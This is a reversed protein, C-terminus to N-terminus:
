SESGVSLARLSTEAVALRDAGSFSALAVTASKGGGDFHLASGDRIVGGPMKMVGVSASGAEFRKSGRVGGVEVLAGEVRIWTRSMTVLYGIVAVLFLGGVIRLLTSAGGMVFPAMGLVVGVISNIAVRRWSPRFM